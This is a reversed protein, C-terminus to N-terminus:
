SQARPIAINDILRTTGLTAAVFLRASATGIIDLPALTEADRVEAYDVAFGAESLRERLGAVVKASAHGEALLNAASRMLRHLTPATRRDAASLYANRSSMALGDAERVIAGGIIAVDLDLDRAMRRIVLLQQYDKEGFVAVDPRCQTLLKCVVTAVGGFFHPRSAGCLSGTLGKVAVRTSFGEPYMELPTPLYVIDVGREALKALDTAEDRPYTDLDEGAAFQTPNVFISVVVRTAHARAVDILSLHGAHLAGMTPVLAVTDGRDRISGVAMRLKDVTRVFDPTYNTM